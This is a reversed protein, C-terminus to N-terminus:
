DFRLSFGRGENDASTPLRPILWSLFADSSRTQLMIQGPGTLDVVLGEGSFLTSKLGGIRRVQFAMDASFSVLHGTDVTYQQGADLTMEHIAGYSSLIVTGQGTLRLMILGESAFFTKAGGFKTDVNVTEAGALFSGSQVM